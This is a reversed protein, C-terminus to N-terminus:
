RTSSVASGALHTADLAFEDGRASVPGLWSLLPGTMATTVVAMAVMLSYLSTDLVGIRLGVTLMVLETLGRANMMTGAALAPKVAMGAARAGLFGGGLKGAVAAVTIIAFDILGSAGVGSLDVALGAVVFYVPLLVSGSVQRINTLLEARVRGATDPLLTGFVFAGIIFQMGLWETFWASGLLGILIITFREAGLSEANTTLLRRWLPRLALLVAFYPILLLLRWPSSTHQGSIAIVISLLTWALIDTLASATLSVDGMPSGSLGRDTLIRALVPLATVALATGMFLVFALRNTTTHHDVIALAVALGLGLPALAAGLTVGVVARGRRRLLRQDMEMGVVFMFLVLGVNALASLLPRVDAPFLSSALRGHFLTQGLLVGALIEGLVEPQRLTRFLAGLVRAVVLILALDALLFLIQHETV